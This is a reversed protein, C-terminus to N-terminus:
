NQSIQEINFNVTIKKTFSLKGTDKKKKKEKGKVGPKSFQSPHPM